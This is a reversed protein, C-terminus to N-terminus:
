NEAETMNKKRDTKTKPGRDERKGLKREHIATTQARKSWQGTRPNCHEGTCRLIDGITVAITDVEQPPLLWL